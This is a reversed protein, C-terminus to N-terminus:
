TAQQQDEQGISDLSVLLQCKQYMLFAFIIMSGRARWQYLNWTEAEKLGSVGKWDYGYVDTGHLMEGMDSRHYAYRVKEDLFHPYILDNGCFQEALREPVWKKM